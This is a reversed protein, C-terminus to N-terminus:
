RKWHMREVTHCLAVRCLSTKVEDDVVLIKSM